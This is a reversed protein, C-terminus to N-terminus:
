RDHGRHKKTDETIFVMGWRAYNIDIVSWVVTVRSEVTTSSLKLNFFGIRENFKM